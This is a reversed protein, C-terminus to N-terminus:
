FHYIGTNWMWVPTQLSSGQNLRRLPIWFSQYKDVSRTRHMVEKSMIVWNMFSDSELIQPQIPWGAWCQALATAFNTADTMRYCRGDALEFGEFCLPEEQRPKM